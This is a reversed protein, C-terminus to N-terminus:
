CLKLASETNETSRGVCVRNFGLGINATNPHLLEWEGDQKSDGCGVELYQCNRMM